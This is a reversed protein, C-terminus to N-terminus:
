GSGTAGTVLLLGRSSLAMKEVVPPVGLDKVSPISEPIHRAVIRPHSRQQCINIRFRGAGPLEYSLDIEQGEDYRSTMRTNMLTYAIGKLEDVTLRAPEKKSDDRLYYLHGNVRVIPPLGVKLHVDSASKESARKLIHDFRDTPTLAGATGQIKPKPLGM